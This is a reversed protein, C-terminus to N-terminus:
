YGKWKRVTESHGEACPQTQSSVYQFILQQINEQLCRSMKPELLMGTRDKAELGRYYSQTSVSAKTMDPKTGTVHDKCPVKQLYILESM